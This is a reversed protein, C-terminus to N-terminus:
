KKKTYIWKIAGKSDTYHFKEKVKHYSIIYGYKSVMVLENTKKNFKYTTGNIDVYAKCNKTDVANAFKISNQKYSEKSPLGFEKGHKDFHKGLSHINFDRAWEYNVGYPNSSSNKGRSTGYRNSAGKTAM